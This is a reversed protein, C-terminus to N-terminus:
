SAGNWEVAFVKYDESEAKHKMTALATEENRIDWLKVTGDYSGSLFLNEVSQNFKVLSIWKDHGEYSKKFTKESQGSRIDWLRITADEHGTL